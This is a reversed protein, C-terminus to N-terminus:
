RSPKRRLITDPADAHGQHPKHGNGNEGKSKRFLLMAAMGLMGAADGGGSGGQATGAKLAVQDSADVACLTGRADLTATAWDGGRLAELSTEKGNRTVRLGARSELPTVRTESQIFLREGHRRVEGAVVHIRAPQVGRASALHASSLGGLATAATWNARAADDWKLLVEERANTPRNTAPDLRAPQYPLEADHHPEGATWLRAAMTRLRDALPQRSKVRAPDTAPLTGARVLLRHKAIEAAFLIVQATYYVFVLFLIAAGLSGALANFNGMNAIYYTLVNKGFEFYVM